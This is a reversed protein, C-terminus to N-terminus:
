LWHSEQWHDTNSYQTKVRNLQGVAADIDTHPAVVQVKSVKVESDDTIGDVVVIITITM